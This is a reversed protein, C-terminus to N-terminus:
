GGLEKLWAQAAARAAATADKGARYGMKWPAPKQEYAANEFAMKGNRPTLTAAFDVDASVALFERLRKAILPAPREPYDRTWNALAEQHERTRDARDAIVADLRMKRMEPTNMQAVMAKISEELQARQEAPLSAIAKKSDEAQQKQEEDAKRVEDEPTGTFQPPRPKHSDRVQAYQTAFEPSAVYNKLWSMGATAVHGRAAPTLLKFAAAPLGPNNLGSSLVTNVAVRAALPTIGLQMLPDQGSGATAWMAVLMATVAVRKM